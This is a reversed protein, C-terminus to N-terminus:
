KEIDIISRMKRIKKLTGLELRVKVFDSSRLLLRGLQIPFSIVIPRRILTLKINIKKTIFKIFDRFFDYEDFPM